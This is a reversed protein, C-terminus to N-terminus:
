LFQFFDCRPMDADIRIGFWYCGVCKVSTCLLMWRECINIKAMLNICYANNCSNFTVNSINSTFILTLGIELEGCTVRIAALLLFFKSMFFVGSSNVKEYSIITM